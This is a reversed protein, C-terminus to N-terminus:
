LKRTKQHNNPKLAISIIVTAIILIMLTLYYLVGSKM